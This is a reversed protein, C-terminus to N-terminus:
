DSKGDANNDTFLNAVLSSDARRVVSLKLRDGAAVAVAPLAITNLATGGSTKQLELVLGSGAQVQNASAALSFAGATTLGSAVAVGGSRVVVRVEGALVQSAFGSLSLNNFALDIVDDRVTGSQAQATPLAWLHPDDLRFRPSAAALGSSSGSVTGSVLFDGSALPPAQNSPSEVGGCGALLLAVLAHRRAGVFWGRRSSPRDM